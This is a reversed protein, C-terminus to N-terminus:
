DAVLRSDDASIPEDVLDAGQYERQRRVRYVGRPLTITDHEEHRLRASEGKIQVHGIYLRPPLDRALADDRFFTVQGGYFAHRHGTAEGEALVVAGDRSRPLIRARKNPATEVLELCLDGQFYLTM